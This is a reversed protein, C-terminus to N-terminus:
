DSELELARPFLVNNELHFHHRLDAALAELGGYLVRSPGVVEWGTLAYGRTAESISSLFLDEQQHDRMAAHIPNAISGAGEFPRRARAAQDRREIYPFLLTEERRMHPLLSAELASVLRRVEFLEPREAGHARVVEELPTRIRALESRAYAHHTQVIFRTLESVPVVLWEADPSLARPDASAALDHLVRDLPIGHAACADRLSRGGACPYDIRHADFVASAGAVGLALDRVPLSPDIQM